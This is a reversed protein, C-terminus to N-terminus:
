ELVRLSRVEKRDLYKKMRPSYCRIDAYTVKVKKGKLAAPNAALAEAGDFDRLWLLRYASGDDGKLLIFGFEDGEVGMLTGTLTTEEQGNASQDNQLTALKMMLAPCKMAMKLGVKEGFAQMAAQDTYDLKIEDQFSQQHKGLSEMMCFGLEMNLQEASINDLNKSEFCKCTEQAILDLMQDSQAQITTLFITLLGTFILKFLNMPFRKKFETPLSVCNGNGEGCIKEPRHIKSPLPRPADPANGQLTFM